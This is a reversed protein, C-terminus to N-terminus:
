LVKYFTEGSMPPTSIEVGGLIPSRSPIKLLATGSAQVPNLSPFEHSSALLQFGASTGTGSESRVNALVFPVPGVTHCPVSTPVKPEYLAVAAKSPPTVRPVTSVVNVPSKACKPEPASSRLPCRSSTQMVHRVDWDVM